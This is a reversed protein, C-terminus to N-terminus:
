PTPRSISAFLHPKGRKPDWLTMSVGEGGPVDAPESGIRVAVKSPLLVPRAFEVSWTFADGRLRPGVDALARSATYMGHAIRRPFGFAKAALSSLHIPNRDGSVAAYQRAVEPDLRWLGTPVPPTFTPRDPSAGDTEPGVGDGAEGPLGDEALRYGKAIYTSVGRWVVDGGGSPAVEAVVDISVGSRHPRLQATDVTLDLAEDLRLSRHQTIRNTLHVMGLLPLPVDDDALLAMALPFALVHVFGPPLADDASEGVLHQYASLHEADARVGRVRLRAPALSGARVTRERRVAFAASGAVGRAYVGGLGPVEDLERVQVWAGGGQRSQDPDTASSSPDPGFTAAPPPASPPTPAPPPASPPPSDLTRGLNRPDPLPGGTPGPTM